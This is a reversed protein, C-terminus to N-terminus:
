MVPDVYREYRLTQRQQDELWDLRQACVGCRPCDVRARRMKLYCRKGWVPFDRIEREPLHDYAFLFGEGCGSCRYGSGSVPRIKM